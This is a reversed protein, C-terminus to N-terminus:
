VRARDNAIQCHQKGERAKLKRMQVTPIIVPGAEYPQRLSQIFQNLGAQLSLANAVQTAHTIIMM